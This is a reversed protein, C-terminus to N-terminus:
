ANNAAESWLRDAREFEWRAVLDDSECDLADTARWCFWCVILNPDMEPLHCRPCGVTTM